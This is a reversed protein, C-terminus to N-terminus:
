SRTVVVKEVCLDRGMICSFKLEREAEHDKHPQKVNDFDLEKDILQITLEVEEEFNRMFQRPQIREYYCHADLQCFEQITTGNAKVNVWGSTPGVVSILGWIEGKIKMSITENPKLRFYKFEQGSSPYTYIEIDRGSIKPFYFGAKLTNSDGREFPSDLVSLNLNEFIHDSVLKSGKPSTHVNDRYIEKWDKESFSKRMEEFLPYTDIVPVGALKAADRHKERVFEGEGNEYDSRYNNVLVVKQSITKLPSSWWLRTRSLAAM